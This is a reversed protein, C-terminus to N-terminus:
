RNREQAQALLGELAELRELFDAEVPRGLTRELLERIAPLNGGRAMAVLKAAIAKIDEETVTGLLASRLQAVKRAHPNGPGGRNGPLFRGNEDRSDESV